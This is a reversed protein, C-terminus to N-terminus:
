IHRATGKLNLRAPIPPPHSLEANVSFIGGANPTFGFIQACTKSKMGTLESRLQINETHPLHKSLLVAIEDLMQALTADDM